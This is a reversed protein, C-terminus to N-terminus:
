PRRSLPRALQYFRWKNKKILIVTGENVCENIAVDFPGWGMGATYHLVSHAMPKNCKSLVDLINKKDRERLMRRPTLM